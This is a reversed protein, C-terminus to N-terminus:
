DEGAIARVLGEYVEEDQEERSKVPRRSGGLRAARVSGTVLPEGQRKAYQQRAREAIVDGPVAKPNCAARRSARRMLYVHIHDYHFRNSGPALVTAFQECAGGQVDRLFGQEEPLGKWGNKVTLKRGDAFQFAAVDLANGFAHESIHAGPQGNMGRCSYASIQRIEIVQVGFWKMAAPQVITTLWHDLASVMPCALTAAPTVTTPGIAATYTPSSGLPVPTAQMSPQQAPVTHPAANMYPRRYDYPQQEQDPEDEQVQNPRLSLPAGADVPQPSVSGPSRGPYRPATGPYQQYSPEPLPTSSYSQPARQQPYREAPWPPQSSSAGRPVGGPPRLDDTYGLASTGGIAAVKLPFDAGCVGPGEIPKVRVITKGEKVAGSKLCQIEAERRWPEREAVWSRSCGALAALAVAGVIYWPVARSM